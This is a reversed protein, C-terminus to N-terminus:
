KSATSLQHAQYYVSVCVCLVVVMVRRHMQSPPPPSCTTVRTWPARAVGECHMSQYEVPM